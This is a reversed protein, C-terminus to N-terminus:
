YESPLLLVNDRFFFKWNGKPFDTWKYKQSYLKNGNGDEYTATGTEDKVNLKIVVFDEKKVKPHGKVVSAIDSTLWNAEARTQLDKMGDTLRIGLYDKYYNETGTFNEYDSPTIKHDPAIVGQQSSFDEKDYQHTQFQPKSVANYDKEIQAPTEKAEEKLQKEFFKAHKAEDEAQETFGEKAYQKATANEEKVRAQLEKKDVEDFQKMVNKYAGVKWSSGARVVKGNPMKYFVTNGSSMAKPMSPAKLSKQTGSARGYLRAESHRATENHWGKGNM